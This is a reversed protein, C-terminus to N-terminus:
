TSLPRLIGGDEKKLFRQLEIPQLEMVYSWVAQHRYRAICGQAFSEKSNM